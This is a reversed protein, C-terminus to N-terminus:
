TWLIFVWIICHWIMHVFNLADVTWQQNISKILVRSGSSSQCGLWYKASVRNVSWWCDASHQSVLIVYSLFNTLDQGGTWQSTLPTNILLRDFTNILPISRCEVSSWAKLVCLGHQRGVMLLLDWIVANLNQELFLM